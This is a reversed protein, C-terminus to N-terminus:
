IKSFNPTPLYILTAKNKRDGQKVWITHLNLSVLEEEGMVEQCKTHHEETTKLKGEKRKNFIYKLNVQNTITGGQSRPAMM